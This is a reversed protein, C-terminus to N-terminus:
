INWQIIIDNNLFSLINLTCFIWYRWHSVSIELHQWHMSAISQLSSAQFRTTRKMCSISQTFFVSRSLGDQDVSIFPFWCCAGLRFFLLCLRGYHTLCNWVLTSSSSISTTKWHIIGMWNWSRQLTSGESCKTTFKEVM